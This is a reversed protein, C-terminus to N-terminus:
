QGKGDVSEFGKVVDAFVVRSGSKFLPSVSHGIRQLSTPPPVHLIMLITCDQQRSVTYASLGTVAIGIEPRFQSKRSRRNRSQFITISLDSSILFVDLKALLVVETCGSVAV